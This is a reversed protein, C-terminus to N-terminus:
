SEAGMADDECGVDALHVSGNCIVFIQTSSFRSIRDSIVSHCAYRSHLQTQLAVAEAVSDAGTLCDDVYFSKDVVNAAIPFETTFDTANQKVAM